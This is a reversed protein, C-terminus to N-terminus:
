ENTDVSASDVSSVANPSRYAKSPDYEGEFALGAQYWGLVGTSLHYVQDAAKAEYHLVRWAAKLSRSAKGSPFGAYTDTTGGAECALIVAKDDGAAAKIQSLFDPNPETPTVGNAQSVPSFAFTSISPDNKFSTSFLSCNVISSPLFPDAAHIHTFLFFEKLFFELLM